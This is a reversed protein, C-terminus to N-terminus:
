SHSSDTEYYLAYSGKPLTIVENIKRNKGAGGAHETRRYSM